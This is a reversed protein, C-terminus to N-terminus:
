KARIFRERYDRDENAAPKFWGASDDVAYELEVNVAANGGRAAMAAVADASWEDLRCSLVASVHVCSRATCALASRACSSACTPRRGRRRARRATPAFRTRPSRSCSTSGRRRAAVRRRAARRVARGAAPPAAAARRVAASGATPPAAPPTAGAVLTAGLSDLKARWPAGLGDTILGDLMAGLRAAEPSSAEDREALAALRRALQQMREADCVAELQRGEDRLEALRSARARARARPRAVRVRLPSPAEREYREDGEEIRPM